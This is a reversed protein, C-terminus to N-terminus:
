KTFVGTFIIGLYIGFISESSTLLVKLGSVSVHFAYVRMVIVSIIFVHFLISIALSIGIFSNNLEKVNKTNNRYRNEVFYKVVITTYVTFLPLIIPLLNFFEEEEIPADYYYFLVGITLLKGGIFISGLL